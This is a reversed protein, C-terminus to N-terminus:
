SITATTVTETLADYHEKYKTEVAGLVIDVVDTCEKLDPFQLSRTVSSSHSYHHIFKRVREAKVDNPILIELKSELGHGNPIKFSMLAELYRRLLNPMNYLQYYDPTPM